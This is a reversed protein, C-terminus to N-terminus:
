RRWGPDDDCGPGTGCVAAWTRGPELEPDLMAQQALAALLQVDVGALARQRRAGLGVVEIHGCAEERANQAHPLSAADSAAMGFSRGRRQQRLAIPTATRVM